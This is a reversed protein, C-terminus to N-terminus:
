RCASESSSLCSVVIVVVMIFVVLFGCDGAIELHRYNRLFIFGSMVTVGLVMIIRGSGQVLVGHYSSNIFTIGSACVEGVKLDSHRNYSKSDELKESTSISM